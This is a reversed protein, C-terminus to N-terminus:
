CHCKSIEVIFVRLHFCCIFQCIHFLHPLHYVFQCNSLHSPSHGSFSGQVLNQLLFITNQRYIDWSPSSTCLPCSIMPNKCASTNPVHPQCTFPCAIILHCNRPCRVLLVVCNKVVAAGAQFIFNAFSKSCCNQLTFTPCPSVDPQINEM